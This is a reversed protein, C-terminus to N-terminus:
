GEADGRKRRGGKEEKDKEIAIRGTYWPVEM